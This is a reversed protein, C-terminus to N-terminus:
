LNNGLGTGNTSKVGVYAQIVPLGLAKAANARHYGDLIHGDGLVIPPSTSFDMKKYQELKSKDLGSLDIKIESLPVKELVFKAFTNIHDIYDQHLNTDHNKRLYEIMSEPSLEKSLSIQNVYELFTKM